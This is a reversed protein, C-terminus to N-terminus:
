KLAAVSAAIDQMLTSALPRVLEAIVRTRAEPGGGDLRALRRRLAVRVPEGFRDVLWRLTRWALAAHRREDAAIQELARRAASDNTEAAAIAAEFAAVSEGICGEEFVALAVAVPDATRADGHPDLPLPGPRVVGHERAALEFCLRAHELEDLIAAQAAQILAPPAALALLEVVFRAFSAVSAHEHLGDRAWGKLGILGGTGQLDATRAAGDIMWPRGLCGGEDAGSYHLLEGGSGAVFIDGASGAIAITTFNLGVVRVLVGVNSNLEYIARDTVVYQDGIATFLEGDPAAVSRWDEADRIHISDAALIVAHAGYSFEGGDLLAQTGLEFSEWSAASDSSAWARGGEGILWIQGAARFVRRLGTWNGPELETWTQGADISSFVRDSAIAVAGVGHAVIDLLDDSIGADVPTWEFTGSPSRLITGAAGVALKDGNSLEVWARLDTAPLMELIAGGIGEIPILTGEALLAIFQGAHYTLSVITGNVELEVNNAVWGAGGGCGEDSPTDSHGESQSESGCAPLGLLAAAACANILLRLSEDLAARRMPADYSVPDAPIVSLSM